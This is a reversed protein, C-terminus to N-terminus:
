EKFISPKEQQLVCFCKVTLSEDRKRSEEAELDGGGRTVQGFILVCRICTDTRGCILIFHQRLNNKNGIKLCPRWWWLGACHPLSTMKPHLCRRDDERTTGSVKSAGSCSTHYITPSLRWLVAKPDILDRALAMIMWLLSRLETLLGQSTCSPQLREKKWKNIKKRNAAPLTPALENDKWTVIMPSLCLFGWNKWKGSIFAGSRYHGHNDTTDLRM